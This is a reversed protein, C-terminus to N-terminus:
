RCEMEAVPVMPLAPLAMTVAVAAAVAPQLRRSTQSETEAPTPALAAAQELIRCERGQVVSRSAEAFGNKLFVQASAENDSRVVARLREVAMEKRAWDCTEAVLRSGLGRRRCSRVVHFSIEAAGDAMRDYRIVGLILGHLTLVWIRSTESTLKEGFWRRHADPPLPDTAHGRTRLSLGPQTRWLPWCDTPELPRLVVDETAIEGDLARMVAAVRAAGAGDALTGDALTGAAWTGAAWTGAALTGAAWTGAALTGAAWTGAALSCAGERMAAREPPDMTQPPWVLAYRPGLLLTTDFGICGAYQREDVGLNPNLLLDADYRRAAALDDVVLLRSGLARLASQYEVDLHSGGMAIWVATSLGAERRLEHFCRTVAALDGPHPHRRDIYRFEAGAQGIQERVVPSVINGLFLVRGGRAAWAAGLALLRALQGTGTPVDADARLL